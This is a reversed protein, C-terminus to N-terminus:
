RLLFDRESAKAELSKNRAEGDPTNVSTYVCHTGGQELEAMAAVLISHAVFVTSLTSLPGASVGPAVPIAADGIPAGLDIVADCVEFLRKGSPHRSAVARSHELSTFAVPVLGRAKAQLALDVAAANIGSQSGMWLMEGKKPLVRDLLPTAAGATRELIRVVPPGATPMLYDGVVPIVFSPGGARHYVEMPFMSSHGSGFVLLSLGSRVDRVLQAALKEMVEANKELVRSLHPIATEAYTRVTPQNM